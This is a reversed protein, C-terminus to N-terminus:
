TDNQNNKLIKDMIIKQYYDGNKTMEVEDLVGNANLAGNFFSVKMMAIVPEQNILKSAFFDFRKLCEDKGFTIYTCIVQMFEEAETKEIIGNSSAILNKVDQVYEESLEFSKTNNMNKERYIDNMLFSFETENGGSYKIYPAIKDFKKIIDEAMDLYGNVNMEMKTNCKRLENFLAYVNNFQEENLNKKADMMNTILGTIQSISFKATGGKKIKQLDKIAKLDGFMGM